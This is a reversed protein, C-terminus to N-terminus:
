PVVEPESLREQSAARGAIWAQEDTDNSPQLVVAEEITTLSPADVNQRAACRFVMEAANSENSMPPTVDVILWPGRLAM